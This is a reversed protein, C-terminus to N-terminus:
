LAVFRKGLEELDADSLVRPAPEPEQAPAPESEQAPAPVPPAAVARRYERIELALPAYV